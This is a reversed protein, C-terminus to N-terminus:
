LFFLCTQGVFIFIIVLFVFHIAKSNIKLFTNRTPKKFIKNRAYILFLSKLFNLLQSQVLVLLSFCYFDREYKKTNDSLKKEEFSIRQIFFLILATLQFFLEIWSSYLKGKCFQSLNKCLYYFIIVSYLAIVFFLIYTQYDAM